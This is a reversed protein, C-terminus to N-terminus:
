SWSAPLHYLQHKLSFSVGATETSKWMKEVKSIFSPTNPSMVFQKLTKTLHAATNEQLIDGPALMLSWINSLVYYQDIKPPMEWTM